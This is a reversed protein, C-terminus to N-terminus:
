LPYPKLPPPVCIGMCDAAGKRPDCNPTPHIICMTDGKCPFGAIGGCKNKKSVCISPYEGKDYVRPFFPDEVCVEDVSCDHNVAQNSSKCHVRGYEPDPEGRVKTIDRAVLRGERPRSQTEQETNHPISHVTSILLMTAILQGLRSM